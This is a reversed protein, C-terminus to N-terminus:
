YSYSCVVMSLEGYKASEPIFKVNLNSFVLFMGKLQSVLSLKTLLLDLCFHAQGTVKAALIQNCHLTKM